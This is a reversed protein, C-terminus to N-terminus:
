TLEGKKCFQYVLLNLNLIALIINKAPSIGAYIAGKQNSGTTRIEYGWRTRWIFFWM